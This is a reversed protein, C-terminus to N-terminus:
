GDGESGLYAARVSPSRVVEDFTGEAIKRGYNLCAVRQAAGQIVSMDHEIIVISIGPIAEGAKRIDEVMQRTEQPSMGATPEDLLLLRPRGALARCIEIRRRDIHPLESVRRELSRGLEPSFVGVLSVTQELLGEVERRVRAPQLTLWPSVRRRGYFGVLLNDLVSLRELLRVRQFTRAVGLRAIEDPRARTIDHGGFRVRGRTARYVGTIVNFLTTKGSGNPGIVGVVEGPGVTLEVGDLAVLGGFHVSLEEVQLLSM